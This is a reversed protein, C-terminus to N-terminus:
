IHLREQRARAVRSLPSRAIIRHRDTGATTPVASRAHTAGAAAATEGPVSTLDFTGTSDGFQPIDDLGLNHLLTLWVNAM